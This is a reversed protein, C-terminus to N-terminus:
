MKYECSMKGTQTFKPVAHIFVSLHTWFPWHAGYIMVLWRTKFCYRQMPLSFVASFLNRQWESKSTMTFSSVFLLWTRFQLWLQTEMFTFVLILTDQTLWQTSTAWLMLMLVQKTWVKLQAQNSYRWYSLHRLVFPPLASQGDSPSWWAISFVAM